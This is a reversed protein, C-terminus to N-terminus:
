NKGKERETAHGAAKLQELTKADIIESLPEMVFPRQLMRPHPVVLDPQQIRLDDYLLIDIDITRDHYVGDAGTKLRRGLRREIRQTTALLQRPTLTTLCCVVANLFKHDSQFGWPETVHFASQRVIAGILKEIMSCAAKLTEASDGLNSGLALYVTHM